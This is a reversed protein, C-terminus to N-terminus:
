RYLDCGVSGTTQRTPLKAKPSLKYFKLQNDYGGGGGSVSVGSQEFSM